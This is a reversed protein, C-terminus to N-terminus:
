IIKSVTESLEGGSPLRLLQIRATLGVNSPMVLVAVDNVLTNSNYSPHIRRAGAAVTVRVQTAEVVNRNHAGLIILISNINGADVCHAALFPTTM